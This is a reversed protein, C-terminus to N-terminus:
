SYTHRAQSCWKSSRRGIPAPETSVASAQGEHPASRTRRRNENEVATPSVEGEGDAEKLKLGEELAHADFENMAGEGSRDLRKTQPDIRRPAAPDPVEKVCVVIRM